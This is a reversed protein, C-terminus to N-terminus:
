SNFKLVSKLLNEHSYKVNAKKLESEYIKGNIEITNIFNELQRIFKEETQMTLIRGVNFEQLVEPNM